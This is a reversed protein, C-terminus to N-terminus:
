LTKNGPPTNERSYTIETKFCEPAKRAKLFVKIKDTEFRILNQSSYFIPM